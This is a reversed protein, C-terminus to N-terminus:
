KPAPVEPAALSLLFAQLQAQDRPSSQRYRQAASSAEGGHLRIAEDVTNARGDHLYPASDRLGWLPPTRWEEEAAIGARRAEHGGAPNVRAPPADAGALFAGYSATDALEPSM